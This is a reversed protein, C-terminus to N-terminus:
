YAGERKEYAPNYLPAVYPYGTLVVSRNELRVGEVSAGAKEPAWLTLAIWNTGDYDLVGQPVPFSTQPGIHSVYTGFKYGNIYLQARYPIQSTTNSFTIYLPVDLGKPIHLDFSASYFGIGASSIGAMPSRSEWSESPPKPQHWGQRESFLGGENLPGRVHDQYDEGGLNGTLKWTIASQERGVLQYDLIGRPNKLLDSGVIWNGDLGTNDVLVTLVYHKGAQLRPLNYTNNQSGLTANGIWSGLFTQNLWVSSAFATGGQTSINFTEELGKAVFHGRYLLYGTHYGYDQSYLSTPTTLARVSNSTNHDANIWLSDGYSNQIEPLADTYKWNLSQLDPLRFHPPHYAVSTSWIGNDDIRYHVKESNIFLYKASKPAGIVEVTTTTNFDATIHLDDKDLYVSRVLYGAHVIISSATSELSTYGIGSGDKDLQPM